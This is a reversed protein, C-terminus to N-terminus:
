SLPLPPWLMWAIAKLVRDAVLTQADREDSSTHPDGMEVEEDRGEEGSREKIDRGEHDETSPSILSSPLSPSRDEPRSVEPGQSPSRAITDTPTSSSGTSQPAPLSPSASDSLTGEVDRGYADSDSQTESM